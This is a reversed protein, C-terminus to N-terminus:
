LAHGVLGHERPQDAARPEGRLRQAVQTTGLDRITKVWLPKHRINPGGILRFGSDAARRIIRVIVSATMAM